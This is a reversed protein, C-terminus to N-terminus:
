QPSRELRIIMAIVLWFVLQISPRFFVTDVMGHAMLGLLAAGLAAAWFRDKGSLCLLSRAGAAGVFTVFALFGLIGTEVMAELFINYAALAEFGSVMYLPYVKMFTSNGIGIGWFWNDRIMALVASWVNMRFSNSSDGRPQAISLVREHIGPIQFLAFLVGGLLLVGGLVWWIRKTKEARLLLFTGAIAALFLGQLVLGVYAGRSFTFVLALTAAGAVFLCLGKLWKASYSLAGALALPIAPLLYGGLLNPNRLTGFVRTLQSGSEADEWLALPAVHIHYQWVGYLGEVLVAALLSLVLFPTRRDRLNGLITAIALWYIVQKPAGKLSALTYPSAGVAVMTFGILLFLPIFLPPRKTETPPNVLRDFLMLFFALLVLVANLGTGVFPSLFLAL